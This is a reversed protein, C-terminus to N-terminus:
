GFACFIQNLPLNLKDVTKSVRSSENFNLIIKAAEYNHLELAKQIMKLGKFHM